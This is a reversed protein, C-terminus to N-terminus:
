LGTQSVGEHTWASKCASVVSVFDIRRNLHALETLVFRAHIEDVNRILQLTRKSEEPFARAVGHVYNFVDGLVQDMLDDLVTRGRDPDDRMARFREWFGGELQRTGEKRMIGSPLVALLKAGLFVVDLLSSLPVLILTWRLVRGRPCVEPSLRGSLHNFLPFWALELIRDFDFTRRVSEGQLLDAWFVEFVHISRGIGELIAHDEAARRIDLQGRYALRMGKLLGNLTEGPRQSGIGHVLLLAVPDGSVGISPM